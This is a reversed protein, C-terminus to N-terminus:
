LSNLIGCPKYTMGDFAKLTTTLQILQPSGIVKWFFLSMIYTSAGEDVIYRHINKGHIIVEIM